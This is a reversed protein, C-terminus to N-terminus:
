PRGSFIPPLQQMLILWQAKGGFLKEERNNNKKEFKVRGVQVPETSHAEDSHSCSLNFLTSLCLEVKIM